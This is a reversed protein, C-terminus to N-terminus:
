LIFMTLDLQCGLLTKVNLIEHFTTAYLEYKGNKLVNVFIKKDTPEIIWYEKVGADEYDKYKILYDRYPNSPSVIEIIFDPAGICGYNVMKSKDCIVSIDPIYATDRDKWLRVNSDYRLLCSKGKLYEHLQGILEVGIAVHPDFPASMMYLVGDNLEYKNNDNIELYEEFTYHRQKRLEIAM